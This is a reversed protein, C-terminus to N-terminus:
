GRNRGSTAPEAHGASGVKPGLLLELGHSIPVTRCRGAAPTSERKPPVSASESYLTHCRAHQRGINQAVVTSHMHSGPCDPGVNNPKVTGLHTGIQPAPRDMWEDTIEGDTAVVRVRAGLSLATSHYLVCYLTAPYSNPVDMLNDHSPTLLSMITKSHSLPFFPIHAYGGAAATIFWADMKEDRLATM